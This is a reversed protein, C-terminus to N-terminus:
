SVRLAPYDVIVDIDKSKQLRSYLYVAWGGILVFDIERKLEQLGRWSAETIDSNWFENM